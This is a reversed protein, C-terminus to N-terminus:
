RVAYNKKFNYEVKVKKDGVLVNDTLQFFDDTQKSIALVYGSTVNSAKEGEKIFKFVFQNEKTVYWKIDSSYQMCTDSNLILKGKDNNSILIWSSGEFCKADALDFSTIKIVSSGPYTVSTLTWEGKLDRQEKRDVTTTVLQNKPKCSVVLGIISLVLFLKKM